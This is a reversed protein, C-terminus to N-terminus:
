NREYTLKLYYQNIRPLKEIVFKDVPFRMGEIKTELGFRTAYLRVNGLHVHSHFGMYIETYIFRHPHRKIHRM